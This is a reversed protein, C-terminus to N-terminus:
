FDRTVSIAARGLTDNSFDHVPRLCAILFEFYRGSYGEHSHENRYAKPREGTAEQYICALKGVVWRLVANTPRGTPPKAGSLQTFEELQDILKRIKRVATGYSPALRDHCLAYALPTLEAEELDDRLQQAHRAIRQAQRRSAATVARSGQGDPALLVHSAVEAITPLVEAAHEYSCGARMLIRIIAERQEEDYRFLEVM